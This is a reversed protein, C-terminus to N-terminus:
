PADRLLQMNPNVCRKHTHRHTVYKKLCKKKNTEIEKFLLHDFHREEVTQCHALCKYFNNMVNNTRFYNSISQASNMFRAKSVNRLFILLLLYMLHNVLDRM